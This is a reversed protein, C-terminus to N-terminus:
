GQTRMVKQSVAILMNPNRSYENKPPTANTISQRAYPRLQHAQQALTGEAPM